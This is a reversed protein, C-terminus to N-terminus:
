YQSTKKDVADKHINAPHIKIIWNINENKCAVKVTEVQLSWDTKILEIAAVSHRSVRDKIIMVTPDNSRGLDLGAVYHRGSEPGIM